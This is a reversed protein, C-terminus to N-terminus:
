GIGLEEGLEHEVFSIDRAPIGGDRIGRLVRQSGRRTQPGNVKQMMTEILAPTLAALGLCALSLGVSKRANDSLVDAILVGAAAGLVAPAFAATTDIWDKEEYREDM